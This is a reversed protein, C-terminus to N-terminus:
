CGKKVPIGSHALKLFDTLILPKILVVACRWRGRSDRFDRLNRQAAFTM